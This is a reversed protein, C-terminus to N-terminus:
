MGNSLRVLHLQRRFVCKEWSTQQVFLFTKSVVTSSDSVEVRTQCTAARSIIIHYMLSCVLGGEMWRHMFTLFFIRESKPLMLLSTFWFFFFFFSMFHLLTIFWSRCKTTCRLIFVPHMRTVFAGVHLFTVCRQFRFIRQGTEHQHQRNMDHQLARQWM